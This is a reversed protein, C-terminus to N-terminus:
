PSTEGEHWGDVLWRGGTLLLNISSSIGYAAYHVVAGAGYVTVTGRSIANVEIQAVRAYAARSSFRSAYYSALAKVAAPCSKVTKHADRLANNVLAKQIFPTVFQCADPSGNLLAVKYSVAALRIAQVDGSGAGAAPVGVAVGALAVAALLASRRLTM